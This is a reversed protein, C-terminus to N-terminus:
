EYIEDEARLFGEEEDVSWQVIEKKKAVLYYPGEFLRIAKDFKEEVFSYSNGIFSFAVATRQVNEGFSMETVSFGENKLKQMIGQTISRRDKLTRAGRIFLAVYGTGVFVNEM